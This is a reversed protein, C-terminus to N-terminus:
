NADPLSLNEIVFVEYPADTPRLRLGLQEEFADYISGFESGTQAVAFPKFLLYWEFDGTLDTADIIPRDVFAQTDVILRSIPGASRVRTAGPPPPDTKSFSWCAPRKKADLPSEVSNLPRKEAQLQAMIHECNLASRSLEPGLKGSRPAELAYVRTQRTERKIRLNFREALLARLMAAIQSPTSGREQPFKASIDFRADLVPEPGDVFKRLAQANELEYAKYLIFRLQYNNAVVADPFVNFTSEAGGSVNQRVSAVEFSPGSQQAGLVACSLVFASCLLPARRPLRINAM